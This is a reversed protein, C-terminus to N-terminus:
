GITTPDNDGCWGPEPIYGSGPPSATLLVASKEDPLYRSLQRTAGDPDRVDLTATVDAGGYVCIGFTYRRGVLTDEIFHEPGFGPIIDEVLRAGPIADQANFYTHNGLDDWIHLDVDSENNWSLQARQLPGTPTPPPPPPVPPGPPSPPAPTQAASLQPETSFIGLRPSALHVKWVDLRLQAGLDIPATLRWWPAKTVDASLKLGANLDVRPGGIGNILVDLTPTLTSQATGSATLAPPQFSFSRTLGGIPSFARGDYQVGAKAGVTTVANTNIAARVAANASLYLQVKPVLVVPVPGITFTYAGLRIPQPLMATSGLTCSADGSVAASLEAKAQVSGEFRATM